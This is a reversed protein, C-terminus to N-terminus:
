HGGRSYSRSQYQNGLERNTSNALAKADVNLEKAIVVQILKELLANNRDLKEELSINDNYNNVNVEKDKIGMFTKAREMLEISRNTNTLPLVM